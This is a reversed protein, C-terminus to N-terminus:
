IHVMIKLITTRILQEKGDFCYFIAIRATRAYWERNNYAPVAIGHRPCLSSCWRLCLRMASLCLIAHFLLLVYGFGSFSGVGVVRRWRGRAMFSSTTRDPGLWHLTSPCSWLCSDCARNTTAKGARHDSKGLQYSLYAYSSIEWCVMDSCIEGLGAANLAVSCYTPMSVSVPNISAACTHRM